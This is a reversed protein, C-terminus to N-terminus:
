RRLFLILPLFFQSCGPFLREIRQNHTSPGAIVSGRGAGRKEIMFYAIKVNELGKDTRIRSPVGYENVASLFSNLLTTAKNNNTYQLM